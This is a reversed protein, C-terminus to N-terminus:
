PEAEEAAEGLFVRFGMAHIRDGAMLYYFGLVLRDHKRRRRRHERFIALRLFQHDSRVDGHMSQTSIDQL